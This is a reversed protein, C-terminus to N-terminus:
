QLVKKLISDDSRLWNLSVKCPEKGVTKSFKEIFEQVQKRPFEWAVVEIIKEQDATGDTRFFGLKKTLCDAYCGINIEDSTDGSNFSILYDASVNTKLMCDYKFEAVDETLGPRALIGSLFGSIVVLAALFKM